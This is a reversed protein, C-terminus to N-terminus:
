TTSKERVLEMVLTVMASPLLPERVMWALLRFPYVPDTDRATPDPRGDHIPGLKTLVGRDSEGVVGVSEEPRVSLACDFQGADVLMTVIVPVSPEPNEWETLRVRTVESNWSETEGVGIPIAGPAEHVSVTAALLRFL